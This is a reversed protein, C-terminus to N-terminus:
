PKPRKAGCIPCFKWKPTEDPYEGDVAWPNGITFHGESGDDFLPRKWKIHRCWKKIKM